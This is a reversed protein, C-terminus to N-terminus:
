KEYAVQMNKEVRMKSLLDLLNLYREQEADAQNSIRLKAYNEFLQIIQKAFDTDGDTTAQPMAGFTSSLDDSKTLIGTNLAELEEKSIPIFGIIMNIVDQKRLVGQEVLDGMLSIADEQNMNNIDYKSKLRSLQEHSLEQVPNGEVKDKLAEKMLDAFEFNPRQYYLGNEFYQMKNSGDVRM